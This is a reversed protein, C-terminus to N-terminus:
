LDKAGGSAGKVEEPTEHILEMRNRNAQIAPIQTLSTAESASSYVSSSKAKAFPVLSFKKEGVVPNNIEGPKSLLGATTYQLHAGLGNSISDISNLQSKVGLIKPPGLNSPKMIANNNMASHSTM